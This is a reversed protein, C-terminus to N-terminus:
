SLDKCKGGPVMFQWFESKWTLFEQYASVNLFCYLVFGKEQSIDCMSMSFHEEGFHVAWVSKGCLTLDNTVMVCALFDIDVAGWFGREHAKGFVTKKEGWLYGSDQSRVSYIVKATKESEIFPIM